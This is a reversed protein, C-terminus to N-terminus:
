PLSVYESHPASTFIVKSSNGADMTAAINARQRGGSPWSQLLKGEKWVKL